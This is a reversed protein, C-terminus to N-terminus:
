FFSKLHLGSLHIPLFNVPQKFPDLGGGGHVCVCGLTYVLIGSRNTRYLSPQCLVLEKGWSDSWLVHTVWYCTPHKGFLLNSKGTIVPLVFVLKTM